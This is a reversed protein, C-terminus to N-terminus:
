FGYAIAVMGTTTTRKRTLPSDKADGQLASVSLGTTIVTKPNLVYTLAANVRVDRVGAGPTYVAYASRTAQLPTVGFYSQLYKANAYTGAVGFGLRWQPALVTTYAAGLDVLLGNHDNGSGYRLTSTLALAPTVAYNFFGGLEPRVDVDGMGKLASSRSEKRGFDVTARVGYNMGPTNSFDYGVGNSTGAFWGSKWQYDLEPLLLTRREDSGQYQRGAVVAAGITGSDARSEVGYLRVVDFAQAWVAPASLALCAALAATKSIRLSTLM